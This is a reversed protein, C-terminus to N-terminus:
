GLDTSTGSIARFVHMSNQLLSRMMDEQYIQEHIIDSLEKVMDKFNTKLGEHYEFQDEKILRENIDLAMSCAQVFRRFIEKLEKAKKTNSLNSKSDDLFARAYAMPGANVQVSVCGQLKLQLQIMDVEQSSCLKHLEATRARMEDIAVDVPKLEVHREGVVEVRKKVYPFTNATKLVTRRKCQEEVGGHKKGSLTYPTEFVFQIINHCKEFDTKKEPAEKEEFYPKVFTVQVYAFKPDLDKPNVKNSDQIIKLNEAGFKDGYLALLRQSIESLGTLKPEKYVYEIGDEEEFFGQGYFAVRFYTGLLRRGSHMVELIKNYARHLTDYLGSLKEFEHRKEYVPILLKAIHTILEYREAKWLGEVCLELREVLVEESYYVDQMGTDEKMAAEEEINLTIRKFAALGSPFLKKRNLYEAVLAAVHVYCMAAESLDGNKIHARAMSDLWTRRLEPTSAYSRALSYQLDLLMEPDKEHERMQATAMLVTRIRKTLGKVESPFATSKMAKDSNAFNNIISLSEQFRSSGTLAVDSILQSVAIIIQLHTRLFTKRKTYDYNNRMLLYLLASAEARLSAMKSVCCKLVEYCLAACLTVRGKFLVPPFKNIFARLSAFVHRLAAESQGVKLFTLYIDFLKKMLPNQGDSDLLQTKFNQTFLSLFDLVSLCAETSINGELVAQHHVEAESPGMGINLTLSTDMTSFQQMKTQMFSNRCRMVPMTQSKRDPSFVWADQSRGINRKGVYRFQVVCTELLSLFNMVDQPNAKNWYALLTEETVTRIIHLFCFLLGKIEYQGLRGIPPLTSSMTSGRRHLEHSDPTSPDMFLSGRSDERRVHGNQGSDKEIATSTRRSDMSGTSMSDDRSGNFALGSSSTPQQASLQKLNQYLLELLPLYLLCIRAQQNKYLAYRDDMAHKILLNKLVAVALHRVEPGAQLGEAVERLLLGVLFHNKCYDETLSFELSQDQVRQLKTRGFAMPLNLPIYHEHNCVGMMFDFKMETLVKPDKLSFGCMYDNVLSFAFGRNMFTLCRKIFTALSLNVQRAEDPIEPHRITIHPMISLLLSQLAQHFSEPFRQARPMKMRNGEQLYLAMSKALTEFFFWSYKLLKNSTNFDATQKLIATVATALVEHTSSSKGSACSNTVFVYKLFSRLYHELGEEHCRSVIHIIVRTSNVAIEHAENTATTLVEFLQMLITPLFRIIVQTEMAHLCKLYKILEAPSGEASSCMLQCHQFFKNLHLDQAYITSAVHTRVRFLPKSNDVWKIDPASKKPDLNRDYLYGAPLTASVPLQLEMSQMRGEKLLPAWSYGVLSEAGERKKTGAKNSVECSIHYFTFLIHHKEHVHVPMEIKVEDYFEPCQNHHLVTAYASSTFMSEGPKGYICKLPAAGEEDSDRFQICVAINRAKAFTKQNDYKLQQPYIYLQNKYTTFPYSYKAEEPLFEEMEVSVRECGEEFPKVPVYSSTVTNSFDPPVCEIIVNLQGPITQLKSKEPKRIDALLKILDDTSIKSSDQRYLPSFKGDMDLGGQGDKFVQKAAWAFPMRYQGLRQCAQKAAKLVKQATKPVDSTKMYPEACHTIGNQLVKEIRAVLFIDAHPNTVSFIGQTPCRLLSESVRQLVPLSNGRGGDGNPAGGEEGPGGDSPDPSSPSLQAAPSGEALMDRVCAPNLDVHFDASIKCSKSVDYLALSIFFPEVNTLVGDGKDSVCGQLSFTLDHCSAVIRRGFREEFPKVDPEIGSFDLRQTEPDLSFLKQRGENRNIKNFQDTERAYKLLEPHLSRGVSELLSEGRGQSTSDEDLVCDLSDGGNRRDSGAESSSLLAQKLTVVWEEMEAESDAALFHSYREQMKLEFGNRRMKPSQIVDICSDLYISGKTEKCNKEDKYSNLIYSGDPLQSLYFYRRKFVRMSVSLSSNINAKQLWGQKMVGGRQSCLSATDEDKFDEDIEFVHPPLKDTKLGKNPLMRFDGSYAEYKYNIVHWDTNYMKICEKAFLSQAEREANQPVSPVLTRRQRSIQSESVDDAPCLLLDRHPDSHIQAKRQFVVNEYDLPEIIKPQEVVVSTRVAESVSQRLEAATGPKSLRKTFKRVESM